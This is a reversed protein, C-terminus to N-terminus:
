LSGSRSPPQRIGMGAPRVNVEDVRSRNLSFAPCVWEGCSCKFGQWAFRGITASCKTNPCNLRGDLAGNELAPRMWSLTEVFIHPCPTVANETIGVGQHDVVFQSNAVVRRCKKCRLEQAPTTIQAPDAPGETVQQAEDEFRIWDAEPAMGLDRAEKLKNEYLWKQYIPHSEVAGDDDVPCAMEWWLELQRMFGENPEAIPRAQRVWKLAQYVAESATERRHATSAASPVFRKGGFRHPYKHLLYAIVCSVSRSKGMACHVYVSATSVPSDPGSIKNGKLCPQENPPAPDATPYLGREIFRVASPLHVLLDQDDMDDVDISMHKFRKASEGWGEFSYKIVSLVSTINKEELQEPRRLAFIGGVYLEEKGPVRSFAM